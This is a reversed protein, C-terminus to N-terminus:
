KSVKARFLLKNGQQYGVYRITVLENPNVTGEILQHLQPDYPIEAGVAGIVTVGWQAILRDISGVLPLIKTAPFDPNNLAAHKATPFYTLFSELVQLSQSQFEAQLTAQQQQLQQQLHSYEQQLTELAQRHSKDPTLQSRDGFTDILEIASIQLSSSIKLITQWRLQSLEGSRIKNITHASTGTSRYLQKFSNIGAIQMLEQLKVTRNEASIIQRDQNNM